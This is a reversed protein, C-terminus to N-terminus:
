LSYTLNILREGKQHNYYLGSNVGSGSIFLKSELKFTVIGSEMNNAGPNLVWYNDKEFGRTSQVYIYDVGSGVSQNTLAGYNYPRWGVGQNDFSFIMMKETEFFNPLKVPNKVFIEGEVTLRGEVSTCQTNSGIEIVGKNKRIVPKNQEFLNKM